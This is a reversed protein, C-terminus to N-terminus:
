SRGAAHAELEGLRVRAEAAVPSADDKALESWIQRAAAANGASTYARAADAMFQASDAAFRAKAAAQRYHDAAETFKAMEEYGAAIQGQVAAGLNEDKTNAIRQLEGIGQQYKGTAYLVESLRLVAQEGASTGHFRRAVRELDNQALAYNRQNLALEARALSEYGRQEKTQQSRVYLWGGLGLAAVIAAGITVERTHAQVWTFFTDAREEFDAPPRAATGTRTM